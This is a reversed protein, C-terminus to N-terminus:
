SSSPCLIAANEEQNELKNKDKYRKRKIIKRSRNESGM